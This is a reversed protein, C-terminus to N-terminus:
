SAVLPRTKRPHRRRQSGPSRSRVREGDLVQMLGRAKDFFFSGERVDPGPLFTRTSPDAGGELIPM